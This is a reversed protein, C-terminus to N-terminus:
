RRSRLMSEYALKMFRVNGPRKSLQEAREEGFFAERKERNGDRWAIDLANRICREISDLVAKQRKTLKEAM